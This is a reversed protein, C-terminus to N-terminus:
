AQHLIEARKKAFEAEVDAHDIGRDAAVSERALAIKQALFAEYEPLIKSSPRDVAEPNAMVFGETKIVVINRPLKKHRNKTASVNL